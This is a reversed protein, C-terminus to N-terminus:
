KAVPQVYFNKEYMQEVGAAESTDLYKGDSISAFMEIEEISIMTPLVVSIQKQSLIFKIALETINWGKSNAVPKMNEIKQMAEMIFEQKRFSRHDNKDFK